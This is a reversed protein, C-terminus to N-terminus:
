GRPSRYEELRDDTLIEVEPPGIAHPEQKRKPDLAGRRWRGEAIARPHDGVADLGTQVDLVLVGVHLSIEFFL